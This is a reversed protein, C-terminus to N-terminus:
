IKINDPYVLNEFTSYKDSYAAMVVARSSASSNKAIILEATGKYYSEFNYIEDRYIFIITDADEELSRWEGLDLFQPRKDPRKELKQNLSTTVLIPISLERALRSLEKTVEEPTLKAGKKSENFVLHQLSDIVVLEVNNTKKIQISKDILDSLTISIADDVYLPAKQLIGIASTLRPWDEDNLMGKLLRHGDIRGISSILRRTIRDAPLSLSFYAVARKEWVASNSAIRLSLNTKGMGPRAGIAILESPHLGDTLDDFDTVGTAIGRTTPSEGASSFIADISNVERVLLEKISTLKSSTNRRNKLSRIEEISNRLGSVVDLWAEDESDWTTIAKADKPLAQLKSFPTESWDSPRVVIPIVVAQNSEHRGMAVQLEKEYCYDSSIFDSSVLLLIIEANILHKDIEKEWEQGPIIKRDHWNNIINKRVLIKLHTELADKYKEDKHSYSLFVSIKPNEM